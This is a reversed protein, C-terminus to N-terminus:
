LPFQLENARTVIQRIPMSQLQTMADASAENRSWGENILDDMIDKHVMLRAHKCDNQRTSKLIRAM